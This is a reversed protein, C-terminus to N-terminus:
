EYYGASQLRLIQRKADHHNLVSSGSVVDEVKLLGVVKENVGGDVCIRIQNRFPKANLQQIRDLANLEFTQGSRGPEEITLLLVASVKDLVGQVEDLDTSMCLAVGAKKGDRQLLSIMEEIDEECEWHIYVTDSYPVVEQLWLSPTKSMIHTHIEREPWLARITEMRYIAAEKANPAFSKDVIDVHIFDPYQGIREHISRLNEVGNAYIAVGVRKFDRFTFNRHLIYAIMFMSASIILRSQEYNLSIQVFQKAVVWQIVGSFVSISVFYILTRNRRSPPVKFNFYTNGIFAFAIGAILSICTALLEHVGLQKLQARIALELMLSIAGIVVYMWLFRFRYYLGDLIKVIEPHLVKKM